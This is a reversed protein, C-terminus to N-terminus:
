FRSLAEFVDSSFYSEKNNEIWNINSKSQTPIVFRIDHIFYHLYNTNDNSYFIVMGHPYTWNNKEKTEFWNIKPYKLSDLIQIHNCYLFESVFRNSSSKFNFYHRQKQRNRKKNEFVFIGFLKFQTHMYYTVYM